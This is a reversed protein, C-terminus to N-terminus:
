RRLTIAGEAGELTPREDHGQGLEAGKPLQAASRRRRDVRVRARWGERGGAGLVGAAIQAENPHLELGAM